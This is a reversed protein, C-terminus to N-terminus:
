FKVRCGIYWMTGGMPYGPYYEYNENLLNELSLYLEGELPSVSELPLALRANVVIADDLRRLDGAARTSTGLNAVTNTTSEGAGATLASLCVALVLFPTKEM